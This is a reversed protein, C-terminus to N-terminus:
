DEDEEIYIKSKNIKCFEELFYQHQEFEGCQPTVCSKYPKFYESFYHANEVVRRLDALGKLVEPNDIEDLYAKMFGDIEKLFYGFHIMGKFGITWYLKDVKETSTMIEFIDQEEKGDFYSTDVGTLEQLREMTYINGDLWTGDSCVEYGNYSYVQNYRKEDNKGVYEFGIKKLITPSGVDFSNVREYENKPIYSSMIDWVKRDVWCYDLDKFKGDLSVDEDRGTLTDCFKQISTEYYKEIIKTSISEEINEIGQYDDYKGFIPLGHVYHNTYGISSSYTGKKLFVLVCDDYGKITINSFNCYVSSSGM